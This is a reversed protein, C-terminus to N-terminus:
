ERNNRDYSDQPNEVFELRQVFRLRLCNLYVTYHYM